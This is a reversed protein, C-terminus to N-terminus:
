EQTTSLNNVFNVFSVLNINDSSITYQQLDSIIPNLFLDRDFNPLCTLRVVTPESPKLELVPEANFESCDTLNNIQKLNRGFVSILNIYYNNNLSLIHWNGPKMVFLATNSNKIKFKSVTGGIINKGEDVKNKIKKAHNIDTNTTKNTININNNNNTIFRKEIKYNFFTYTIIIIIYLFILYM